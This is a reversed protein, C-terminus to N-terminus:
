DGPPMGGGEAFTLSSTASIDGLKMGDPEAGDGNADYAKIVSAPSM